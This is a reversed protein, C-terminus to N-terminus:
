SLGALACSLGAYTLPSFGLEQGLQQPRLSVSGLLLHLAQRTLVVPVHGEAGDLVNQAEHGFSYKEGRVKVEMM